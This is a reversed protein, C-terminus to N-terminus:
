IRSLMGGGVAINEGTIYSADNSCLFSALGALEEPQAFRKLASARLFYDNANANEIVAQGFKTYTVGAAISNIRINRGALESTLACVMCHLAAKSVAYISPYGDPRFGAISSLVIISGGDKMHPVTEKMTLFTSKVNTAMVKDFSKETTDLVKIHPTPNCGVNNVLIDVKGFKKVARNIFAHRDEYSDIHCNSVDFNHLDDKEFEDVAKKVNETKRSSAFVFAGDRCLRKAIQLGIGQTSGTVLAVKNALSM